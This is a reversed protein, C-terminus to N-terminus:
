KINKRPDINMSSKYYKLPGADDSLEENEVSLILEESNLESKIGGRIYVGEEEWGYYDRWADIDLLLSPQPNTLKLYGTGMSAFVNRDSFNHENPFEIAHKETNIFINDTVRQYRETGGRGKVIRAANAYSGYGTNEIDLIFNHDFLISDSGDTYLASGGAGYDGSIWYQSHIDHFINHDIRIQRRSVEIYVGGRASTIGTFVNQTIRCNQSAMYDLWIGPAYVINRFINRRILTNESLHLKIAGSEFGLEADHWGIYEFLNDEILYDKGRMGELGAIGCNKIENARFIHHGLVPEVTTHWMENGLDVGLSNAWEVICNEIIWHNGRSASVMGRQPVPFGNGTHMFHIGDIHIYALGYKKPAFVQEKITIEVEADEPTVGDPFRIHIRLGHHEAYYAGEKNDSLEIPRLVQELLKGNVFVLGRKKFHPKMNVKKYNLWEQDQMLNLMGFPNYGHFAFSDLEVMWINEGALMNDAPYHKAHSTHWGYSPQFFHQPVVVSGKVIVKEGEMAQYKIMKEPSEGGNVPHISERYIGGAILVREGAQLVKAAQNITRFPQEETGPNQDSANPASADVYYTHSYKTPKEWSKFENGYPLIGSNIEKYVDTQAISPSFLTFLLLYINIKILKKM